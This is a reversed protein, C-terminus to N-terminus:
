KTLLTSVKRFLEYPMRTKGIAGLIDALSIPYLPMILALLGKDSPESHTFKVVEHYSIINPHNANILLSHEYEANSSDEGSQQLYNLYVKGCYVTGTELHIVRYLLAKGGGAAIIGDFLYGTDKIVNAITNSKLNILIHQYLRKASEVSLRKARLLPMYTSFKLVLVETQDQSLKEDCLHEFYTIAEADSLQAAGVNVSFVQICTIIFLYLKMAM